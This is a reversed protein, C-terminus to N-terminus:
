GKLWNGVVNEKLDEIEKFVKFVKVEKFVKGEIERELRNEGKEGKKSNKDYFYIVKIGIINKCFNM